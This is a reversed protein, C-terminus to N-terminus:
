ETSSFLIPRIEAHENREEVMELVARRGRLARDAAASFLGLASVVTVTALFLALLADLVVYGGKGETQEKGDLHGHGM